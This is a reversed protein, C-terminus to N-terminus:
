FIGDYQSPPLPTSYAKDGGIGGSDQFTELSCLNLASVGEAGSAINGVRSPIILEVLVGIQYGTKADIVPGGSSGPAARLDMWFNSNPGDGLDTPGVSNVYGETYYRAMPYPFGMAAVDMGVNIKGSCDINLPEMDEIDTDTEIIALDSRVAYSVWEVLRTQDMINSPKAKYRVTLSKASFGDVCHKATLFTAKGLKSLSCIKSGAYLLEGTAKNLLEIRDTRTLGEASAADRSAGAILGVLGLVFLAAVILRKPSSFFPNM